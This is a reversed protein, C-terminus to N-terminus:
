TVAGDAREDEIAGRYIELMREVKSEWTFYHESL